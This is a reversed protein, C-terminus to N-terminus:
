SCTINEERCDHLQPSRSVHRIQCNSGGRLHGLSHRIARSPCHDFGTVELASRALDDLASEQEANAHLALDLYALFRYTEKSFDITPDSSSLFYPNLHDISGLEHGFFSALDQQQVTINYARLENPSWDSGSKASRTVQRFRAL